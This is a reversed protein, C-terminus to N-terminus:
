YILKISSLSIQNNSKNLVEPVNKLTKASCQVCTEIQPHDLVLRWVFPDQNLANPNIVLDSKNAVLVIPRRSTSAAAIKTSTSHDNTSILSLDALNNATFSSSPSVPKQTSKNGSLAEEIEEIKPLWYSSLREKSEDDGLSYVLCIVNSKEIEKSLEEDNQERSSFDIILGPV